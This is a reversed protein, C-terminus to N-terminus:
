MEDLQRNHYAAIKQKRSARRRPPNHFTACLKIMANLTACGGVLPAPQRQALGRSTIPDHPIFFIDQRQIGEIWM